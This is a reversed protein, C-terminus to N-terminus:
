AEGGGNGKLLARCDTSDKTSVVRDKLNSDQIGGIQLHSLHACMETRAKKTLTDYRKRQEPRKEKAEELEKKYKEAEKDNGKEKAVKISKKLAEDRSGLAGKADQMQRAFSDLFEIVQLRARAATQSHGNSKAWELTEQLHTEVKEGLKYGSKSKLERTKERLQLLAELRKLRIWGSAPFTEQANALLEAARKLSNEGPDQRSLRNRAKDLTDWSAGKLVWMGNTKDTGARWTYPGVEVTASIGDEVQVEGMKEECTKALVETSDSGAMLKLQHFDGDAKRCKRLGDKIVETAKKKPAKCGALLSIGGILLIALAAIPRTPLLPADPADHVAATM